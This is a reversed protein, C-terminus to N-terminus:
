YGAGIATVIVNVSVPAHLWVSHAPIKTNSLRFETSTEGTGIPHGDTPTAPATGASPTLSIYLVAANKNVIVLDTLGGGGRFGAASIATMLNVNGNVTIKHTGQSM